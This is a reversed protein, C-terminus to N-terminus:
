ARGQVAARAYPVFNEGPTEEDHDGSQYAEEKVLLPALATQFGAQFLGMDRHRFRSFLVM